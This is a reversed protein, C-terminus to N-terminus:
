IEAHNTKNRKFTADTKQSNKEIVMPSNSSQLVQLTTLPGPPGLDGLQIDIGRAKLRALGVPISDIRVAKSSHPEGLEGVGIESGSRPSQPVEQGRLSQPRRPGALKFPNPKKRPDSSLTSRRDKENVKKRYVPKTDSKKRKVKKPNKVKKDLNQKDENEEPIVPTM